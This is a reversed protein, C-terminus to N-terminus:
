WILYGHLKNQRFEKDQKIYQREKKKKRGRKTKTKTETQEAQHYCGIIIPAIYAIRISNLNFHQCQFINLAEETVTAIKFWILKSVMSLNTFFEKTNTAPFIPLTMSSIEIKNSLTKIPNHM